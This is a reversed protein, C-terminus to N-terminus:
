SVRAAVGRAVIHTFVHAFTCSFIHLTLINQEGGRRNCHIATLQLRFWSYRFFLSQLLFFFTLESGIGNLNTGGRPAQLHLGINGDQM